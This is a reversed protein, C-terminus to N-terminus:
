TSLVIYKLRLDFCPATIPNNSREDQAFKYDVGERSTPGLM